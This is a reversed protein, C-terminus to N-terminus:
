RCLKSVYSKLTSKLTPETFSYIVPNVASGIVIIYRCPLYLYKYLHTHENHMEDKSQPIFFRYTMYIIFPIYTIIHFLTILTLKFTTRSYGRIKMMCLQNDNTSKNRKEHINRVDICEETMTETENRKNVNKEDSDGARGMEEIVTELQNDTEKERVVTTVENNHSEGRSAGVKKETNDNKALIGLELIEAVNGNNTDTFVDCSGELIIDSRTSQNGSNEKHDINETQEKKKSNRIKASHILNLIINKQKIMKRVILTHLIILSAVCFLFLTEMPYAVEPWWKYSCVYCSNLESFELKAFHYAFASHIVALLTSIFCFTKTYTEVPSVMHPKCVMRYRIISVGVLLYLGPLAFLMRSSHLIKCFFENHMEFWFLNYVVNIPIPILAIFFDFIAMAFVLTQTATKNPVTWYFRIVVANGVLAMVSCLILLVVSPFRLEYFRSIEEAESSNSQNSICLM